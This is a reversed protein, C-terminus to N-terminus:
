GKQLNYNTTLVNPCEVYHVLWYSNLVTVFTTLAFTIIFNQPSNYYDAWHGRGGERKNETKKGEQRDKYKKRKKSM